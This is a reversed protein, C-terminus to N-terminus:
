DVLALGHAMVSKSRSGVKRPQVGLFSSVFRVV